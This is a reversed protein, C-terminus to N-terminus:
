CDSSTVGCQSRGEVTVAPSPARFRQDTGHVSGMSALCLKCPHFQVEVFLLVM